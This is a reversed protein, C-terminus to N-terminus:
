STPSTTPTSPLSNLFAVLANVAATVNAPEVTVGAAKEYDDFFGQAAAVTLALKQSGTGNQQGVAVAVAETKGIEGVIGNILAGVGPFLINIIPAADEAVTEVDKIIPEAKSFFKKLGNGINSLVSIFSAM